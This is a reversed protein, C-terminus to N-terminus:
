TSLLFFSKIRRDKGQPIGLFSRWIKESVTKRQLLYHITPNSPSDSRIYESTGFLAEKNKLSFLFVRDFCTLVTERPSFSKGGNRLGRVPSCLDQKYVSVSPRFPFFVKSPLSAVFNNSSDLVLDLDNRESLSWAVIKNNWLDQIVSLYAFSDRIRVYTIDTVLRRLPAEATFQRDLRGICLEYNVM